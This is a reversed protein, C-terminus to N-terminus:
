FLVQTGCGTPNWTCGKENCTSQDTISKCNQGCCAAKNGSFNKGCSKMRTQCKKMIDELKHDKVLDDYQESFAIGDDNYNAQKCTGLGPANEICVGHIWTKATLVPKAPSSPPASRRTAFYMGVAVTLIIVVIAGVLLSRRKKM